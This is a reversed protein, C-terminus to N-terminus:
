IFELYPRSTEGLGDDVRGRGVVLTHGGTGRADGTGRAGRSSRNHNTIRLLLYKLIRLDRNGEASGAGGSADCRCKKFKINQVECSECNDHGGM